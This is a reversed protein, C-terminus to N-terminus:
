VGLRWRAILRRPTKKANGKGASINDYRQDEGGEGPMPNGRFLWGPGLLLPAAGSLQRIGLDLGRHVPAAGAPFVNENFHVPCQQFVFVNVQAIHGIAKHGFAM